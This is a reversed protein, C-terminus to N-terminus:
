EAKAKARKGIDLEKRDRTMHPGNEAAEVCQWLKPLQSAIDRLPPIM